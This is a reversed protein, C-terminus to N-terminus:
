SIYYQAQMSFLEAYIGGQQILDNHTGYEAITGSQFVAIKDCFKASSLRHSIYIATKGQVLMNFNQYMEYEARPDLAANPEDLIVIPANKYLARALAIKQGEGGSPEFGDPEFDRYIHTDLGLDLQALKNKFGSQILCKKIVEDTQDGYLDPNGLTINERLTFSFLTFDQFVASLISQYQMYDIDRIDVDNLYITGSTPDYLRTLLKVFTTKGAGNEGVISLKEGSHITLNVDQLAYQSQGAYRFSVHSFRITYAQAEGSKHRPLPLRKGQQMKAPINLYQELEKYYLGFQRMNLISQMVDTMASSFQSIASLFMTFDGISCSGCIVDWALYGYSVGERLFATFGAFYYFKNYAHTQKKYFNDSITLHSAIKRLLIDKYNYLRIEKGTQFEETLGNLYGTKREIVAKEMDWKVYNERIKSEVLANLLVLVIFLLVIWINMTSLIAVLGAFVFLKGIINIASDLVVGFGQGNAYLFQEAKEKINLFEPNELQEFDCDALKEAMFLQFNKFVTGKSTFCRGRLFTILIGGILNVGILLGIYLALYPIRRGNTLEDLIYKPLVITILPVSATVLQFLLIYVVYMKNFKWTYKLLFAFGKFMFKEETKLLTHIRYQQLKTM